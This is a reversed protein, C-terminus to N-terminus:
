THVQPYVNRGRIIMLDKKRGCIFLEGGHMFGLDGTKLFKMDACESVASM